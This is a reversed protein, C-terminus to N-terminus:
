GYIVQGFCAAQVLADDDLLDFDVVAGRPDLLKAACDGQLRGTVKARGKAIRVVGRHVVKTTLPVYGDDTREPPATLGSPFGADAGGVLSTWADYPKVELEEGNWRVRGWEPRSCSWNEVSSHLWSVYHLLALPQEEDYVPLEEEDAMREPEKDVCDSFSYPLQRPTHGGEFQQRVGLADLQEFIHKGVLSPHEKAVAAGLDAYYFKAGNPGSFYDRERSM